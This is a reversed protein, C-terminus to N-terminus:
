QPARYASPPGQGEGAAWADQGAPRQAIGGVAARELVMMTALVARARPCRRPRGRWRYGRDGVALGPLLLEVLEPEALLVCVRSPSAMAAARRRSGVTSTSGVVRRTPALPGTGRSSTKSPPVSSNADYSMHCAPLSPSRAPLNAAANGSRRRVTGGRRGAWMAITVGRRQGHRRGQCWRGRRCRAGSGSRNSAPQTM